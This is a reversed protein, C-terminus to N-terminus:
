PLVGQANLVDHWAVCLCSFQGRVEVEIEDCQGAASGARVVELHFERNGPDGALQGVGVGLDLTGRPDVQLDGDYALPGAHQDTTDQVEIKADGASAAQLGSQHGSTGIQTDVEDTARGVTATGLVVLFVEVRRSRVLTAERTGVEVEPRHDLFLDQDGVWNPGKAWIALRALTQAHVAAGVEVLLRRGRAAAHAALSIGTNRDDIRWTVDLVFLVVGRRLNWRVRLKVDVWPIRVPRARYSFTESHIEWELVRRPTLGKAAEVEGALWALFRRCSGFSTIAM